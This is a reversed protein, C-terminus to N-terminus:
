DDDEEITDATIAASNTILRCYCDTKVTENNVRTANGTGLATLNFTTEIEESESMSYEVNLTCSPFFIELRDHLTSDYEPCIEIIVKLPVQILQCSSPSNINVAGYEAAKILDITSENLYSALSVIIERAQAAAQRQPKRSGLGITGDQNHNNKGEMSFSTYLHTGVDENNLQIKIDYAMLPVAGAMDIIDYDNSDFNEDQFEDKYIWEESQALYDDSVELKFSDLLLGILHKQFIDFTAWGHFSQLYQNEGGWFEHIHYGTPVNTGTATYKYQDFFGRLFYGIRKLDCKGASSGSPKIVGPRGGQVMRSGDSYTVAEDNLKFSGDTMRRHFVPDVDAIDFSTEDEGELKGYSAEPKLGLVRLVM